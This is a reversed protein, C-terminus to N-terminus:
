SYLMYLCVEPSQDEHVVYAVTGFKAFYEKLLNYSVNEAPLGSVRLVQGKIFHVADRAGEEKKITEEKKQQKLTKEAAKREKSEAVEKAWYDNQMMRLLENGNFNKADENKVFNEATEKDKFTAFVSGKFAKSTKLRRM